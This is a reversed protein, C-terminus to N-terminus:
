TLTCNVTLGLFRTCTIASISKNDYNIDLEFHNNSKSVFKMSHTKAINLPLLNHKFWANLTQFVTSTTKYFTLPNLHSVLISTDDAFLIPVSKDNIFKSLGNISVLFLLTELVSGQPVGQEVKSSSSSTIRSNENCLM